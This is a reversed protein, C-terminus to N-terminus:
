QPLVRLVELDKEEAPRRLAAECWSGLDKRAARDIWGIGIGTPALGGSANCVLGSYACPNQDRRHSFGELLAPHQQGAVAGVQGARKLKQGLQGTQTPSDLIPV